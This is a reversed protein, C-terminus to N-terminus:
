PCCGGRTLAVVSVVIGLIITVIAGVRTVCAAGSEGTFWRLFMYM